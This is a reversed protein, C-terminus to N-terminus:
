FLSRLAALVAARGAGLRRRAGPAASSWQVERPEATRGPRAPDSGHLWTPDPRLLDDSLGPRLMRPRRARQACVVRGPRGSVARRRPPARALLRPRARAAAAARPAARPARPAAHPPAPKAALAPKLSGGTLTLEAFKAAVRATNRAPVPQRRACAGAPARRPRPPAPSVRRKRLTDRNHAFTDAADPAARAPLDLVLDPTDALRRPARTLLARPARPRPRPPATEGAPRPPPPRSSARRCMYLDCTVDFCDLVLLPRPTVRADRATGARPRLARARLRAPARRRAPRATPRPPRPPRPPSPASAAARGAVRRSTVCAPRPDRWQSLHEGGINERTANAGTAARATKM